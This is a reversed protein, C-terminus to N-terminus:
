KSQIPLATSYKVERLAIQSTASAVSPHALIDKLLLGEFDEVTATRVLLTYDYEGTVAFCEMIQPIRVVWTEFADRNGAEYDVMKLYVFTAVSAGVAKADVLAVRGKIVGKKELDAIRRWLTTTSMALAEALGSVSATCDEQLARLIKVDAKNM